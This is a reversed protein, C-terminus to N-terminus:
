PKIPIPTPKTHRNENGSLLRAINSRHRVVILLGLVLFAGALISSLADRVMLPDNRQVSPLLGSLPGMLGLLVGVALLPRHAAVERRFVALGARARLSMWAVPGSDAETSERNM